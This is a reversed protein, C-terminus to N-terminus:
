VNLTWRMLPFTKLKKISDSVNTKKKEFKSPFEEAFFRMEFTGVEMGFKRLDRVGFCFNWDIQGVDSQVAALLGANKTFDM